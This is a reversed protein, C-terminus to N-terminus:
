CSCYFLGNVQLEAGYEAIGALNIAICKYIGRHKADLYDINLYSTRPNMKMVTFGNEGSIMPASNLTWYIDLPLDGKAVVCNISATDGMNLVEDGFSFAM